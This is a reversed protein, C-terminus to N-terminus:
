KKLYLLERRLRLDDALYETKIRNEKMKFIVFYSSCTSCTNIESTNGHNGIIVFYAYLTEMSFVFLFQHGFVM